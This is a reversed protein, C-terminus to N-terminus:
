VSTECKKAAGAAKGKAYADRIAEVLARETITLCGGGAACQAQQEVTLQAQATTLGCLLLLVILSKM